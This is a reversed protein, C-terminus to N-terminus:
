RSVDVSRHLIELVLRTLTTIQTPNVDSLPVSCVVVIFMCATIADAKEVQGLGLDV